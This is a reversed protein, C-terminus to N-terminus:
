AFPVHWWPSAPNTMLLRHTGLVSLYLEDARLV